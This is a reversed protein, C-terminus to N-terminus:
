PPPSALPSKSLICIYPVKLIRPCGWTWCERRLRGNIVVNWEMELCTGMTESIVPNTAGVNRRANRMATATVKKKKHVFIDSNEAPRSTTTNCTSEMQIMIYKNDM